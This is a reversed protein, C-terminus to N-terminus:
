SRDILEALEGFTEAFSQRRYDDHMGTRERFVDLHEASWDESDMIEVMARAENASAEMGTFDIAEVRARVADKVSAPLVKPSMWDHGNVPQLTYRLGTRVCWEHFEALYYLNYISCVFNCSLDLCGLSRFREINRTVASWRAPHRLYEFREGVGDLSFQIGVAEFEPWLEAAAEPFVTGNSNYQITIHGANGTSVCLRLLEFHEEILFPEGGHIELREMDGLHQELGDWLLRSRSPWDRFHVAHRRAYTESKEVGLVISDIHASEEVWSSSAHPHCSRCKLNCRNGLNLTLSVLKARAEEAVPLHRAYTQENHHLRKSRFGCAEEDWCRKCPEPKEGDLFRRRIDALYDSQWIDLLADHELHYPTGDPKEVFETALCCYKAHGEQTVEVNLWPVICFSDPLRAPM